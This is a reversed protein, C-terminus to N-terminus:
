KINLKNQFENHIDIIKIMRSNEDIHEFNIKIANAPLINDIKEAWEILTFNKPVTWVDLIGLEIIEDISGLRYLDLHNVLFEEVEYLNWLMFTPSTVVDESTELGSVFGRVFETKGAGLDGYLAFIRPANIIKSLRDALNRTKYVSDSIIEHIMLRDGLDSSKFQKIIITFHLLM